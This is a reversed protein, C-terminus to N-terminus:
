FVTNLRASSLSYLISTYTLCAIAYRKTFALAEELMYEGPTIVQTVHIM